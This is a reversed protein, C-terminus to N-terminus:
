NRVRIVRSSDLNHQSSSEIDDNYRRGSLSQEDIDSRRSIIVMNPTNTMVANTTNTNKMTIKSNNKKIIDENCNPCKPGKLEKNCWEKICKEHFIHGCTLKIVRVKDKFDELCITCNSGFANLHTDYKMPSCQTNFFKNIDFINIETTDDKSTIDSQRRENRKRLRKKLQHKSCLCFLTCLGACLLIIGAIVSFVIIYSYAKSKENDYSFSAIFPLSNKSSFSFYKFTIYETNPFSIYTSSDNITVINSSGDNKRYYLAYNDNIDSEFKTLNFHITKDKNNQVKWECYMNTTGYVGDNDLLRATLPITNIDINMCYRLANSSAECESYRDYWQLPPELSFTCQNNSWICSSTSTYFSSCNYCDTFSSCPLNPTTTQSFSFSIFLSFYLLYFEIYSM